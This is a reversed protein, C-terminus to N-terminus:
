KAFILDYGVAFIGADVLLHSLWVGYLSALRRYLIAWLVGGVAVSLSFFVTWPSTWGFYQALVCVHHAALGAASLVIASRETTPSRLQGFVFWRWYYEELFSHGLAYFTGLAVFRAPTAINMGAIKARIAEVAEAPLGGHRLWSAYLVLMAVLIVLGLAAGEVIERYQPRRLAVRRRQVTWVWIVPFGFQLLKGIAYATQQWLAPQAALLVFYVVTVVTPFVLAFLVAWGDRRRESLSPDLSEPSM